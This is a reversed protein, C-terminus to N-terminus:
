EFVDLRKKGEMEKAIADGWKNNGNQKDLLLALWMTQPVQIGFKEKHTTQSNRKNCSINQHSQRTLCARITKGINYSRHLRRICQTHAKIMKAAWKTFFSQGQKEEIVYNKIYKAIELLVDKKLIGFPVDM